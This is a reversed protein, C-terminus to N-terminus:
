ADWYALTLSPIRSFHRQNRSVLALDRSMATAAILLDADPLLLGQARLADYITAAQNAVTKDVPLVQLQPELQLLQQQQAPAYGSLLGRQVEYYSIASILITGFQGIQNRALSRIDPDRRLLSIFADSDFLVPKM